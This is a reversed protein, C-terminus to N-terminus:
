NLLNSRAISWLTIKEVGTSKFLQSLETVTSATTIVDDFIAVHKGLTEGTLRFIGKVNQRRAKRPLSSQAQTARSRECANLLLPLQLQAAIPRALELAQNYGREQLRKKHLPVPIISAPLPQNQYYKTLSEAMLEGLVRAYILKEHFKLRTILQDIPTKYEFLTITHDFPPPKSLCQGCCASQEGDPLALGCQPCSTKCYPLENACPKCLDRDQCVAQCLICVHPFAWHQTKQLLSFITKSNLLM